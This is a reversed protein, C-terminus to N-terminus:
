TTKLFRTINEKALETYGTNYTRELSIFKGVPREQKNAIIKLLNLTAHFNTLKDVGAPWQESFRFLYRENFVGKEHARMYSLLILLGNRFVEYDPQNFLQVITNHFNYQQTGGERDGAVLGPSMKAMYGDLFNALGKIYANTSARAKDIIAQSSSDTSIQEVAQKVQQTPGSKNLKTHEITTPDKQVEVKPQQVPAPQEQKVEQVVPAQEPAQATVEVPNETVVETSLEEQQDQNEQESMNEEEVTPQGNHNISSHFRNKRSM